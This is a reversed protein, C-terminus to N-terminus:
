EVEDGTDLAIIEVDDPFARVTNQHESPVLLWVESQKKRKFYYYGEWDDYYRRDRWVGDFVQRAGIYMMTQAEELEQREWLTEPQPYDSDKYHPDDVHNKVAVAKVVCMQGWAPRRAKATKLRERKEKARQVREADRRRMDEMCQQYEEETEFYMSYRETM